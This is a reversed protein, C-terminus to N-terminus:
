AEVPKSVKTIGIKNGLYALMMFYNVIFLGIFNGHPAGFSTVVLNILVISAVFIIKNRTSKPSTKPDTMMFFAFLMGSASLDPGMMIILDIGGFHHFFLGGVIMFSFYLLPLLLRKAFYLTIFGVVFLQIAIHDVIMFQDSQIGLWNVESLAYCGVIGILSPNFFHKGDSQIIYKSVVAITGAMLYLGLSSSNLLITLSVGTVIPSLLHNLEFKPMRGSLKRLLLDLGIIYCVSIMCTEFTRQFNFFLTIIVFLSIHNLTIWIYPNSSFKKISTLSMSKLALRRM